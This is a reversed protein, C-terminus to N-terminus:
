HAERRPHASGLERRGPGQSCALATPLPLWSCFLGLSAAYRTAMTQNVYREAQLLAARLRCHAAVSCVRLASLPVSQVFPLFSVDLECVERLIARDPMLFAKVVVPIM